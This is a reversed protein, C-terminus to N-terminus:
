AAGGAAANEVRIVGGDITLLCGSEEGSV